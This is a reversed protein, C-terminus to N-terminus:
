FFFFVKGFVLTYIKERTSSASAGDWEDIVSLMETIGIFFFQFLKKKNAMKLSHLIFILTLVYLLITLYLNVPLMRNCFMTYYASRTYKWCKQGFRFIIHTIVNSICCIHDLIRLFPFFFFLTVARRPRTIWQM